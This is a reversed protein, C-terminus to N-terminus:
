NVSASALEDYGSIVLSEAGQRDGAGTWYFLGGLAMAQSYRAKMRVTGPVDFSVFGKEGTPDVCSAAAVTLDVKANQVWEDPMDAYDLEGSDTFPQGPGRAGAFYRGYAPVGLLIKRSPFGQSMLYDVGSSTSARLTPHVQNIDGAPPLLQAHHGSIDTWGGTFDYGMLNIFDLM